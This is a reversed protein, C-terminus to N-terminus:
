RTRKEHLWIRSNCGKTPCDLYLDGQQEGPDTSGKAESRKCEIECGCNSCEGGLLQEQERKGHRYLRDFLTSCEPCASPEPTYVAEIRYDTKTQTHGTVEWGPLNLINV